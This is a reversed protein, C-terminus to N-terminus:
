VRPYWRNEYGLADHLDKLLNEAAARDPTPATTNKSLWNTLAKRYIEGKETHFRDGVPLGTEQEHRIAAATSGSGVKSNPRYLDDVIHQLKGDRVVPKQM